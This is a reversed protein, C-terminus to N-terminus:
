GGKAGRASTDAPRAAGAPISLVPIPSCRIVREATAGLLARDLRGESQLNIVILDARVRQAYSLIEQHPTGRVVEAVIDRYQSERAEQQVRRALQRRIGAEGNSHSDNLLDMVHLLHVEAEFTQAFGVCYHFGETSWDSFDTAYVIKRFTTELPKAPQLDAEPYPVTLIPAPLRRLMSETTTGLFFREIHRRGHTGMVVMDIKRDKVIGLLEDRADGTKVICEVGLKSRFEPPIERPLRETAEDFAKKEFDQSDGPFVYHFAAFSPVIHAVTLRAGSKLALVAGCRVANRSADSFDVPILVNNLKM